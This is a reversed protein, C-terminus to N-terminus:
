SNKRQNRQKSFSTTTNRTSKKPVNVTNHDANTKSDLHSTSSNTNTSANNAKMLAIREAITLSKHKTAVEGDEEM